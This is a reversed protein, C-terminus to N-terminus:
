HLGLRSTAFLEGRVSSGPLGTLKWRNGFKGVRQSDLQGHVINKAHLERLAKAVQRMISRSKQFYRSLLHIHAFDSRYSHDNSMGAMVSALRLDPKDVAVCFQLSVGSPVNPDSAEM